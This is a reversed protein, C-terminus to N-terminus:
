EKVQLLELPNRSTVVMSSVGASTVTALLYLLACVVSTWAFSALLEPQMRGTYALIGLLGLLLGALSTLVNQLALMTASCRKTTGLVRMIAAERAFTMVFLVAIGATTLLSLLLTVPYLVEMLAISNELPAVALRLEDDWIVAHLAVSGASQTATINNISQSFKFLERNHSPDLTVRARSYSIRDGGIERYASLPLLVPATDGPLTTDAEYYGAVEFVCCGKYLVSIEGGEKIEYYSYLQQPLLVPPRDLGASDFQEASWDSHFTGSIETDDQSLFAQLNSSALLEVNLRDEDTIYMTGNPCAEAYMLAGSSTTSELYAESIYGTDLLADITDQRIFNDSQIPLSSSRVLDAQVLTNSYLWDMKEQNSLVSLRIAALGATFGAALLISLITKLKSRIIYRWVFRLVRAVGTNHTATIGTQRVSIAARPISPNEHLAGDMATTVVTARPAVAVGGSQLLGLVPRHSLMAVGSVATILFMAFAVGCLAVLSTNPLVATTSGFDSLNQLTEASALEAYQWGAAGGCAIGALGVLLLPIAAEVGCHRAPVGLARAIAIDKWRMKFYFVAVMCLTVVLLISFIVANALSSRVIPRSVSIFDEWGNDFLVPRFGFMELVAEAEALFEDATGPSALVYGFGGPDAPVDDLLLHSEDAVHTFTEPIASSPIYVNQKLASQLYRGTVGYLGVIEYDDKMTEISERRVLDSKACLYGNYAWSTDIDRLTLTLMDGVSLNRDAALQANIVCVRREEADDQSNLLRGEALHLFRSEDQFKPMTRMDKVAVAYLAHMNEYEVQLEATIEALSPDTFDPEGEDGLPIYWPGGELLPKLTFADPYYGSQDDRGRVLYRKGPELEEYLWTLDEYHVTGTFNNQPNSFSVFQSWRSAYEPYVIPKFSPDVEFYFRYNGAGMESSYKLTGCLYVDGFLFNNHNWAPAHLDTNYIGDMVASTYRAQDVMGIYSSQELYTKAGYLDVPGKKSIPELMGIAQYYEGLRDTEQKILLYESMRAVFAFTILGTLILLLVTKVPQRLTSRFFAGKLM